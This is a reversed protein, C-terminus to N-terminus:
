LKYYNENLYGENYYISSNPNKIRNQIIIDRIEKIGDSLSYSPRWGYNYYKTCDTKYNRLDKEPISKYKFSCEPILDKVEESIQAITYNKYGLNFLGHINNDLAYLIAYGVDKVHLLPRWQEIGYLLLEEKLCAKHSLRNVVLDLRIRSFNDGVGFLTGLRFIVYDNHNKVIYKEVNLKTEAYLSLPNLDSNEFRIKESFGYVSSSSTFVIKGKYNNVLWIVTDENISRTLFPDVECAGDGVVAALWVIIDYNCLISSMKKRDRVDGYIFKVSKLYRKEYMLNDYVTVDYNNDILIDTLYGGVYGVGGVILVKKM